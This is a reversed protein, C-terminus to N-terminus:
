KAFEAPGTGKTQQVKPHLSTHLSNAEEARELL